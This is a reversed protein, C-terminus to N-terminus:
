IIKRIFTNINPRITLNTIDVSTCKAQYFANYASTITTTSEIRPLDSCPYGSFARDLKGNTITVPSKIKKVVDIWGGKNWNGNSITNNFYESTDGVTIDDIAGSMQSPTYTNQTGNKDRISNAIQELYTETIAKKSM